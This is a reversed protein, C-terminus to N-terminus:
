LVSRRLPTGARNTYKGSSFWQIRLGCFARSHCRSNKAHSSFYMPCPGVFHPSRPLVVGARLALSPFDNGRKRKPSTDVQGADLILLAENDTVPKEPM